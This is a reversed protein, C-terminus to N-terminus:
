CPYGLGTQHKQLGTQMNQMSKETLVITKYALNHTIPRDASASQDPVLLVFSGWLGQGHGGMAVKAQLLNTTLRVRRVRNEVVLIAHLKAM